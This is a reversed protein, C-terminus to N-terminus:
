KASVQQVATPDGRRDVHAVIGADTRFSVRYRGVSASQPINISFPSEDGPQLKQFDLAARGSSLFAGQRDFTFVVATVGSLAQGEHPNRVLGSVVLADGQRQHRLSILELPAQPQAAAMIQAPHRNWLYVGGLALIVVLAGIAPILLGGPARTATDASGFMATASSATWESPSEVSRMQVDRSAFLSPSAAYTPEPSPSPTPVGALEALATARAHSREREAVTLQRLRMALLVAIATSTVAILSLFAMVM